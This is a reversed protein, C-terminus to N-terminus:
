DAAALKAERAARLNAFDDGAHYSSRTLPTASVLLFGKGRAMKAYGEFEEPTVFKDIRAHKPTPQLYQGITLFDVDAARLDDMVQGVEERTEGLGVMLGSKTFVSPVKEKIRRLLDLSTFYRSGPRITPYLRPVTELNHNFVDPPDAAMIDIAGPKDKFDPTLIEITSDPASTRLARVVQSFHDAGGDPLDDRDVSTLVVHELAMGGVAVAVNAPENPDLPKPVGTAVNCFACARTCTDGMIMITAHKKAWCEGINPCAAEECVTALNLERMMKRTEHYAKSTPAKVRIWDPKRQIPHDPRNRKEPHRLAPDTRKDCVPTSTM